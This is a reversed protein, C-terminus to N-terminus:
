PNIRPRGSYYFHTSEDDNLTVGVRAVGSPDVTGSFDSVYDTTSNFVYVGTVQAFGDPQDEGWIEYTLGNRDFYGIVREQTKTAQTANCVKSSIQKVTFSSSMIVLLMMACLYMLKKM